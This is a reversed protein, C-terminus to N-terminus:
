AFLKFLFDDIKQLLTKKIINKGGIEKIVTTLTQAKKENEVVFIFNIDKINEQVYFFNEIFIRRKSWLPLTIYLDRCVNKKQYERLTKIVNDWTARYDSISYNILCHIILNFKLLGAITSLTDGERFGGKSINAKFTEIASLPQLGSAKILQYFSDAGTVFADTGWNLIVDGKQTLVDGVIVTINNNKTKM